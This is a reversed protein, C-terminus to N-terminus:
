SLLYPTIHQWMVLKQALTLSALAPSTSPLRTSPLSRWPQTLQPLVRKHYDHQARSGNFFIHQIYPHQPFFNAFDNTVVSANHIQSDLSGTRQCGYIVDWLAIGHQQLIFLKDAYSIQPNFACLNAMIHWFANRPHAYYQQQQLSLQGPMSGLILIQANSRAM